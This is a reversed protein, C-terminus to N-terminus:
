AVENLPGGGRTLRPWTSGSPTGVPLGQVAVPAVGPGIPAATFEAISPGRVLKQAATRATAEDVGEAVIFGIGDPRRLRESAPFFAYVAM